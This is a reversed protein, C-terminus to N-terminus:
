SAKSFRVQELEANLRDREVKLADREAMMGALDSALEYCRGQVTSIQRAMEEIVAKTKADM